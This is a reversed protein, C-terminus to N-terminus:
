SKGEADMKVAYITRNPLPAVVQDLTITRLTGMPSTGVSAGGPNRANVHITVKTGAVDSSLEAKLARM